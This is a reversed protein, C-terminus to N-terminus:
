EPKILQKAKFDEFNKTKIEMPIEPLVKDNRFKLNVKM